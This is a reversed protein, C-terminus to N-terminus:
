NSLLLRIRSLVENLIKKDLRTIKTVKREKWDMSRIQDCLIAGKIDNYNILVEFPYGKVSSTIPVFLALQSKINYNSPSLVIAPRKKAIERGKQPEFDIWVIDGKEPTYNVM